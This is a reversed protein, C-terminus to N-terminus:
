LEPHWFDSVLPDAFAECGGVARSSSGEKGREGKPPELCEKAQPQMVGTEEKDKCPRRRQRVSTM